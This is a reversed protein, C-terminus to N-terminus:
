FYSIGDSTTTIPHTLYAEYGQQQLQHQVWAAAPLDAFTSFLTPGSGSLRVYSAGAQLMAARAQAVEPYQALVGRELSNYLDTPRLTSRTQLATEAARSWSGNSYDSATLQRFVTATSVGIAPKLLVLWRMATPWHPALPTIKEGRGECLALGGTLFFPIDSGLSAAIEWLDHLSLPLQWWQQLVLLTAAANSSGGGLGAAVPVRKNLEISLGRTLNLKQRIAQAARVVLNQENSLEPRNCVMSVRDEDIISFCLTDYLDITQMITALEHYGDPRKGLVDLTLNIKAYSRTFRVKEIAEPSAHDDRRM